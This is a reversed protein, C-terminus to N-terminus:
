IFKSLINVLNLEDFPKILIDNFYVYNDKILQTNEDGTTAIIINKYGNDKIIKTASYGDITEMNIDMFIIDYSNIKSLIISQEGSFTVEVLINSGYKLSMNQLITKLLIGNIERDDVILIKKNLNIIPNFINTINYTQGLRLPHKFIFQSGENYTSKILIEGGLLNAIKQCIFLGLGNSDMRDVSDSTQGYYEFIKEIENQKIGIGTDQIEFYIHKDLYYVKIQINNQKNKKSYKIANNLLNMLIQKLRLSDTFLYVPVIDDIVYEIKYIKYINDSQNLQNFETIIDLINERLDINVINLNMENSNIKNLDLIDNIIKKMEESSSKIM